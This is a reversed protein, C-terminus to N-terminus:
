DADAAANDTAETPAQLGYGWILAATIVVVMGMGLKKVFRSDM